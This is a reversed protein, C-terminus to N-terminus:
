SIPGRRGSSAMPQGVVWSGLEGNLETGAEGGEGAESELRESRESESSESM